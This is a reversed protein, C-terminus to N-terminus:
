SYPQIGAPVIAADTPCKARGEAEGSHAPPYVVLSPCVTAADSERFRAHAKRRANPSMENSLGVVAMGCLSSRFTVSGFPMERVAKKSSHKFLRDLRSAKKSKM